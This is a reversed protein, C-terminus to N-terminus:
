CSYNFIKKICPATILVRPYFYSCLGEITEPSKINLMRGYLDGARREAPNENPFYFWPAMCIIWTKFPQITGM